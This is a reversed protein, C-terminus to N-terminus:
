IISSGALTLCVPVVLNGSDAYQMDTNPILMSFPMACLGVDIMGRGYTDRIGLPCLVSGPSTRIVICIHASM